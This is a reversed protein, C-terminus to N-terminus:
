QQCERVEQVYGNKIYFCDSEWKYPNEKVYKSILEYDRRNRIIHDHFSKQWLNFGARKTVIGKFQQIVRSVTPAVKPRGNEDPNGNQVAIILHIHNPMIAYRDIKVTGSYIDTIKKIEEEAILGYESLEFSNIDNWFIETREITCITIFYLGDSSYDFGHLRNPKRVPLEMVYVKKVAPSWLDGRCCAPGKNKLLCFPFM